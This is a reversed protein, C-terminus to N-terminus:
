KKNRKSTIKNLKYREWWSLANKGKKSIKELCADIFANEKEISRLHNLPVIKGHGKANQRWTSLYRDVPKLFAYPSNLNWILHGYLYSFLVSTFSLALSLYDGHTLSILILAIFLAGFLSKLPLRFLFFFLIERSPHMMTWLFFLSFLSSAAGGFLSPDRSLVLVASGALGSLIGTLLYFTLFTKASFSTVIDSGIIWLLYLQLALSILWGLTIGNTPSQVFLYTLPQWIYLHEAGYRSLAFLPTLSFFPDVLTVFLSFGGTLWLLIKILKPTFEPGVFVDTTTRIM